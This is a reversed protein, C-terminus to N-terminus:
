RSNAAGSTAARAQAEPDDPPADVAPPAVGWGDGATV